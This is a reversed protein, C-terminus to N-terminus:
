QRRRAEADRRPPAGFRRRYDRSFQAASAYGVRRAAASVEMGGSILLLRAADLRRQKQYQLPTMRTHAKFRAYLSSVSVHVRAALREASFREAYHADLWATAAAVVADHGRALERLGDGAPGALLRYILERQLLPALAPIEDPSELLRVLRAFPGAIDASAAPPFGALGAIMEPDLTLMACLYPARVVQSVTPTPRAITLIDGPGLHVDRGATRTRKQGAVFVGVCPGLVHAHPAGPRSRRNVRMFPVATQTMGDARAAQDLYPILERM